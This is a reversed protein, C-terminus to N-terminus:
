RFNINGSVDVCEPILYTPFDPHKDFASCSITGNGDAVIDIDQGNKAAFVYGGGGPASVPVVSGAIYQGLHKTIVIKMDTLDLGKDILASKIAEADAEITCDGNLLAWEECAYDELQCLGFQSGDTNSVIQLQGGQEQCNVSAPNSLSPESDINTNEQSLTEIEQSQPNDSTQNKYM